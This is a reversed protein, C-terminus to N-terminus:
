IAGGFWIYYVYSVIIGLIVGVAVEFYTHGLVAKMKNLYIKDNFDIKTDYLEKLDNILKQTLSINQGAYYRVNAADYCIIVSFCLSIFFANSDFGDTLGVSLSLASVLASHSSPMDGNTFVLKGIWEGYILYHGVPKLLQALICASSAAIAVYYKNM